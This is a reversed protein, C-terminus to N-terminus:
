APQVQRLRLASVVAGIAAFGAALGIAAMAGRQIGASATADTLGFVLAVLASGLTQGLLRATALM